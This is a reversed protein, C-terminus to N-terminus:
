KERAAPLLPHVPCPPVVGCSPCTAYDSVPTPLVPDAKSLVDEFRGLWEDLFRQHQQLAFEIQGAARRMEQGADRAANGGQRVDDSGMLFITEM